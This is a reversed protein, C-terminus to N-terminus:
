LHHVHQLTQLSVQIPKDKNEAEGIVMRKGTEECLTIMMLLDNEM